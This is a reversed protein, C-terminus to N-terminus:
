FEKKLHSLSVALFNSPSFTLFSFTLFSVINQSLSLTVTLSRTDINYFKKQGSTLFNKYYALTNTGQQGKWSSITSLPFANAQGHSVGNLHLVRLYAGSRVRLSPQFPWPCVSQSIAFIGYIVARFFKYCQDSININYFKKHGNTIIKTILQLM